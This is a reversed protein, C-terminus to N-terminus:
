KNIFVRYYLMIDIFILAGESHESSIQVILDRSRPRRWREVLKTFFVLLYQISTLDLGTRLEAWTPCTLCHSQTM